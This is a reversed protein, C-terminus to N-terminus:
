RQAVYGVFSTNKLRVNNYLIICLHLPQAALLRQAARLAVRTTGVLFAVPAFNPRNGRNRSYDGLERVRTTPFESM